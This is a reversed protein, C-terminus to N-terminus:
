PVLYTEPGFAPGAVPRVPGLIASVAGAIGGALFFVLGLIYQFFPPYIGEPKLAGRSFDAAMMMTYAEDQHYGEPLGFGIGWLRMILAVTGVAAIEWVGDAPQRAPSMPPSEVM